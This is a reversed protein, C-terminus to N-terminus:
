QDTIRPKQNQDKNLFQLSMRQKGYKQYKQKKFLNEFIQKLPTVLANKCEEILKPHIYDPGQSKSPKIRDTAKLINEETVLITNLEQLTFVYAIILFQYM